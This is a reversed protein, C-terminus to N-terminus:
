AGRRRRLAESALITTLDSAMDNSTIVEGGGSVTASSAVSAPSMFAINVTLTLAQYSAGAALVDRRTATVIQGTVAVTWGNVTAPGTYKLGAALTAVVSVSANTAGKGINSVLITYTGSATSTFNGTHTMKVTLDAAQTITTVD